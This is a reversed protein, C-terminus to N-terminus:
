SAGTTVLSPTPSAPEGAAPPPKLGRVFRIEEMKVFRDVVRSLSSEGRAPEYSVAVDIFGAEETVRRADAENWVWVAGLVQHTETGEAVNGGLCVVARGGPRLVRYMEALAREPEPFAEVSGMCTVVSFRGDEWPLAVADGEIIEATGAAIRGALRQRALSLQLDSLDLGVVQRVNTAQEALFIGSGCAVELLEDDPQLELEKAMLPYIPAHLVPMVWHTSVWGLPGSPVGAWSWAAKTLWQTWTEGRWRPALAVLGAAAAGAGAIFITRRM